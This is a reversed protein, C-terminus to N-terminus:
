RRINEIDIEKELVVGAEAGALDDLMDLLYSEASKNVNSSEVMIYVVTM